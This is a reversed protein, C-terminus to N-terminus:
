EWSGSGHVLLVHRDTPRPCLRVVTVPGVVGGVHIPRYLRFHETRVLLRADLVWVKGSLVCHAHGGGGHVRHPATGRLCGTPPRRLPVSSCLNTITPLFVTKFYVASSCLNTGLIFNCIQFYSM